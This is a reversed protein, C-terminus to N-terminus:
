SGPEGIEGIVLPMEQRVLEQQAYSVVVEAVYEGPQLDRTVSTLYGAKTPLIRDMGEQLTLQQTSVVIGADDKLYVAATPAVHANSLNEVALSLLCEGDYFDSHLSLIEIQYDSPDGVVASIPVTHLELLDGGESFVGIQLDGYYGGDAVERPARITLVSRGSRRPEILLETAGRISVELADFVSHAYEPEINSGVVQVSVTEGARNTMEISQTAAGGARLSAEISGPDVRLYAMRDEQNFENGTLSIQERRTIQRGDAYRLFLRLEYDGPFLPETVAGLLQLEAGPFISTSTVGSDWAAQTRLDIREVLRRNEDRITAEASVLYMLPSPNSIHAIAVPRGESDPQLGFDVVDAIARLGPRDVHIAIRVAYRVRFVVGSTGEVLGTSGEPEVMVVVIHSGGADFPVQVRGKIITDEGPHVVVRSQELSVWDIARYVSADGEEYALGGSMLQIPQFLSLSVVQQTPEPSLIIQFEGTDGPRLSMDVALPRVGIASGDASLFVLILALLALVVPYKRFM